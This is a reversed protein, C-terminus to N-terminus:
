VYIPCVRAALPSVIVEPCPNDIFIYSGLTRHSAIQPATKKVIRPILAIPDNIECLVCSADSAAVSTGDPGNSVVAAVGSVLEAALGKSECFSDAASEPATGDAGFGAM